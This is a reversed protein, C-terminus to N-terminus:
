AGGGAGGGAGPGGCVGGAIGCFNFASRLAISAYAATFPCLMALALVIEATRASFQQRALAALLLGGALDAAAQVVFVANMWRWKRGTGAFLLEM